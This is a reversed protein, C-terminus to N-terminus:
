HVMRVLQLLQKCPLEFREPIIGQCDAVRFSLIRIPTYLLYLMISIRVFIVHLDGIFVNENLQNISTALKHDRFIHSAEAMGVETNGQVFHGHIGQGSNENRQPKQSENVQSHEEFICVQSISDLRNCSQHHGESCENWGYSVFYRWM